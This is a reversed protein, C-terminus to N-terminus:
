SSFDVFHEHLFGPEGLTAELAHVPTSSSEWPGLGDLYPYNHEGELDDYMWHGGMGRRMVEGLYWSAGDRFERHAPDHLAEESPAVRRLVEELGPLSNPSFDWTVDAGYTAAWAPFAVERQTLWAGLRDSDQPPPDAMTREKVPEWDPRARVMRAVAREWERYVATFREGDGIEAAAMVLQIPAVPDLKLAPDAGVVPRGDAPHESAGEAAWAWAGGALRMLTEGLYTAVGEVFSWDPLVPTEGVAGFREVVEREVARLSEVTYDLDVETDVDALAVDQLYMLRFFIQQHWEELPNDASSM